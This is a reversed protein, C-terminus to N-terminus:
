RLGLELKKAMMKRIRPRNSNLLEDSHLHDRQTHSWKKMHEFAGQYTWKLYEIHPEATPENAFNLTMQRRGTGGGVSAHWTNQDFFIVDGPETELPVAPLAEMSVGFPNSKRDTMQPMIADHYPKQHSGPIVRLCGTESGIPDLYFAVEIRIYDFEAQNRPSGDPHWSKSGVFLSGDSGLHIFGEGLLQKIPDYIRDDDILQMLRPRRDCIRIVQQRKPGKFPKGGRDEAMVDDYDESIEAMEEPSFLGRLVVYGFTEFHTVQESTLETSGKATAM